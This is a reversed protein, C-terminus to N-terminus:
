VIAYYIHGLCKFQRAQLAHRQSGDLVYEVFRKSANWAAKCYVDKGICSIFSLLTYCILRSVNYLMGHQIHALARGFISSSEPPCALALCLLYLKFSRGCSRHRVAVKNDKGLHTQSQSVALDMSSKVLPHPWSLKM